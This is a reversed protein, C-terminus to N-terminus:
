QILHTNLIHLVETLLKIEDDLKISYVKGSKQRKNQDKERDLLLTRIEEKATM